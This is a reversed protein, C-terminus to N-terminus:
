RISQRQTFGKPAIAFGTAPTEKGGVAVAFQFFAKGPRPKCRFPTVLPVGQGLTFPTPTRRRKTRGLPPRSHRAPRAVTRLAPATLRRHSRGPPVRPGQSRVIMPWPPAHGELAEVSHPEGLWSAAHRELWSLTHSQGSRGHSPTPRTSKTDAAHVQHRGRPLCWGVGGRQGAVAM